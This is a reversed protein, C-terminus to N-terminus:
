PWSPAGLSCYATVSIGKSHCFNILEEQPLFSHHIQPCSIQNNAPKYKLGSKSLLWNIQIHNFNFIGNAKVLGADVLEEMAEWANVFDMDSPVIMDNEDAPFLEKFGLSWHMLYLDLYDLQLAVLTKQYAEKLLTKEYFTCWLKSFVFLDDQMVIGEEIKELLTERIEWENQYVYAFDFHHYGMDIAFSVAHRVEGQLSQF